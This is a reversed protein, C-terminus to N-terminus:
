QKLSKERQKDCWRRQKDVTSLAPTKGYIKHLRDMHHFKCLTITEDYLEIQHEDKFTERYKIIDEVSSIKINNERKWKNWLLSMSNFHHFQLNEDTFCIYCEKDKAYSKKALDRIYKVEDRKLNNM